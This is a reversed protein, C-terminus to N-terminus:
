ALPEPQGTPNWVLNRGPILFGGHGFEPRDATLHHPWDIHLWTADVNGTGDCSLLGLTCLRARVHWYWASRIRGMSTVGQPTLFDTRM